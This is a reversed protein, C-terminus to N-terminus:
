QAIIEVKGTDLHYYGGVIKVNKEKVFNVLLPDNKLIQVVNHINAKILNVLPNGPQSKTHKMLPMILPAIDQIDNDIKGSLVAAVAGCNEHGLVMILPVNLHKVSYELSDMEIPGVVNGAVRVVFINGLGVDFILEPPVRSDSCGLIAAFPQQSLVIEARREASPPLNSTKDLVYHQNGEILRKLAEESTMQELGAQLSGASLVVFMAALCRLLRM